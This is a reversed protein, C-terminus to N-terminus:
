DPKNDKKSDFAQQWKDLLSSDKIQCRLQRLTVRLATSGLRTQPREYEEPSLSQRIADIARKKENLYDSLGWRELIVMFDQFKELDFPIKDGMSDYLPNAPYCNLCPLYGAPVPVNAPHTRGTRLLEPLVHTHPGSPTRESPIRQYVEIRGLKSIAIRHPSAAIIQGMVPNNPDLISRGEASRLTKLLIEDETRICFDINASNLGLDFLVAGRDKNRVASWDPGLETLVARQGSRGIERPLCFVIGNRWLDRDKSLNEYAVPQTKDRLELRLAGRDTLLSYSSEVELEAREDPTRQFEAIAGFSGISFSNHTSELLSGVLHKASTDASDPM